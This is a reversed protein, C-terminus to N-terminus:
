PAAMDVETHGDRDEELYLLLGQGPMRPRLEPSARGTAGTRRPTWGASRDPRTPSCTRRSRNRGRAGHRHRHNMATRCCGPRSPPRWGTAALNYIIILHDGVEANCSQGAGAGIIQRGTDIEARLRATGREEDGMSSREENSLEEQPMFELRDTPEARHASWATSSFSACRPSSPTTLRLTRPIGAGRHRRRCREGSASWRGNGRGTGAVIRVIAARGGADHADLTSRRTTSRRTRPSRPLAEPVTDMPGFNVM